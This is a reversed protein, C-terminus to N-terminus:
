KYGLHFIVENAAVAGTDSDAAGTTIASAIGTGFAFGHADSLIRGAGATNGPIMLTMVPTSTGVTPATALNYLKLYRPAANTNTADIVYVQGASAKVSQANTSADSIRRHILLGGSTVPALNAAVTGDVTLSGGNDTVPWPGTGANATVTGDVTLSGAGDDVSLTGGNDDVSLVGTSDSAVTVRLAGAEVGGGTVALAANDVTLSGGNDDVSLSGGADSVPQTTTGTPDTRVPASPTGGAVPGGSAPLALGLMTTSVTGAGTDYDASAAGSVGVTGDVTLSGGGDTVSVTGDVTLSGGGDQVTVTGDVTLSGGADGVPLPDTTSTDVASGDVGHVVKVRQHHVGAIDDTAWTAGGAGPDSTVNDAL